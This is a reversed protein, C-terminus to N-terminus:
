PSTHADPRPTSRSPASVLSGLEETGCISWTPTGLSAENVTSARALWFLRRGDAEEIVRKLSQLRRATPVTFLVRFSRGGVRSRFLGHEKYSVYRRIKAAIKAYAESSRDVELFAHLVSGNALRLKFFADPRFALPVTHEVPDEIDEEIAPENYWHVLEAGYLPAGVTLAIRVDNATLRHELFLLGILNRHARWKLQARDVDLAETLLDAGRRDLAYVVDPTRTRMTPRKIAAVYRASVLLNLDGLRVGPHLRRLQHLTLFRYNYLTQTLALVDADTPVALRPSSM